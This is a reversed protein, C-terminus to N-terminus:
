YDELPPMKHGPLFSRLASVECTELNVFHIVVGRGVSRKVISHGSLM